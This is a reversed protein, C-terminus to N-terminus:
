DLGVINCEELTYVFHRQWAWQILKNCLEAEGWLKLSGGSSARYGTPSTYFVRLRDSGPDHFAFCNKAQPLWHALEIISVKKPLTRTKPKGKRKHQLKAKYVDELEADDHLEDVFQAREEAAADQTVM